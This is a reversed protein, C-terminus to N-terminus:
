SPLSKLKDALRMSLAVMTMTPNAYGGTPFVSSSAVYCNDIGHIKCDADVVSTAPDNGMRTTGMLHHCTRTYYDVKGGNEEAFSHFQGFGKEQLGKVLLKETELISHTDEDDWDMHVKIRPIGLPGVEDSLTVRNTPKPRQESLGILELMQYRKRLEKDPLKAWGGTALGPMIVMGKFYKQWGIHALYPFGLLLNKINKWLPQSMPKGNLAWAFEQASKFAAYDRAGPRPFLMAELSQLGQERKVKEPLGISGIVSVGNVDRMDYFKLKEHMNGDLGFYGHLILSHDIYYRGVVDQNNGLGDPHSASKSNLLLQPVGFGGAALVFTDAEVRIEQGDPAIVKAAMVRKGDPSSILESVTANRYLDQTTSKAIKEPIIKTFPDTACFSFIGSSINDGTLTAGNTNGKWVDLDKYAFPGLNFQEHLKEYYPDVDSKSIPWSDFDMEQLPVYRFGNAGSGAMKVIWHNATGGVQRARVETTPQNLMGSLFGANLDDGLKTHHNDGSELVVVNLGSDMLEDALTLGAPGSGVICIGAKVVANAAFSKIDYEM